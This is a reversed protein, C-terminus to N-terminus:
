TADPPLSTAAFVDMADRLYEVVSDDGGGVTARFREDDVYMQGLGRYAQADPTWFLCTVEYHLRVLEQVRPDDVPVGEGKLRAMGAHVEAQGTRAKEADQPSWRSMRRAAGDVADDGWRERAEGEYPNHEFGAFLEEAPMDEGRRMAGITASVTEVLRGLREHEARLWDGHRELVAVADAGDRGALVEAILPLGLGLDRLLLVQQLRELEARGYLRTGDPTTGAPPLLGVADYHRLTRTTVHAMRAVEGISWSTGQATSLHTTSLHTM